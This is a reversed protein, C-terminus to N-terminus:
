EYRLAVMPDVKMARRAPIFNAVFAVVSLVIATVIFTAADVPSIGYLFSVLLRTGILAGILGLAAGIAVLTMGERLVLGLVDTTRAGLAMRIGIERTRQSVAYAMVGYLGVAALLLALGGFVAILVAGMRAAYLSNGIQESMTRINTVPLNREISQVAQRVALALGAPENSARVLLTMGTEHNQSLPLYAFPTAAEGLTVYKSDRAIGIIERWPGKEGELSLRKGLADQGGFHRKAFTENVILVGPKDETDQENFDRGALLSIGVTQFYKPGVVSLSLENEGGASPNGGESRFNSNPGTRGEIVMGRISSGGSLPVVRTLSASEVGPLAEVREVVQRYFERGQARTYRLLNISLPATLLKTEDFGTRIAQAQWLSRLFLGAGILLMFSLAVQTIVLGNRLNFRWHNHNLTPSDNKLTSVLDPRSAQLAPIIGFVIGTVASLALTFILVRGDLSFDLSVPLVGPPPPAGKLADVAWVALLLGAAGGLLSLLLSETLLQRVLRARRAGLALRVAIEKRRASARALLLNAVNACAILLVIGVVTLLLSAVSRLQSRSEPDGDSVRTLTLIRNRNTDPYLEGQQKTIPVLAAQAQEMTVGPKLRGILSLWRNRRVKLLDPNMEGSYGARPPRMVAQMMMPVYFDDVRNPFASRYDNPLVGIITFSQGNLSIQQGIVGASGGFRRQWLGHGLVVVPHAGPTRDDENTIARGLAARVGILDFFNGSVIAGVILDTQDNSNISASIGAWAALGAFVQNQDRFEVYDPYSANSYPNNPNGSHVYVLSEPESVPLQRWLTANILSFIATNAGIGLALIAVAILTFGPRKILMRVGYRVDQWLDDILGLGRADRCQEKSQEVGGFSRRAAYRAEEPSMGGSINQEVDRELHYRLEEDLEQEMEGRRLLARLRRGLRGLMM